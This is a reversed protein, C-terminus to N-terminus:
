YIYALRRSFFPVSQPTTVKNVKKKYTVIESKPKNASNSFRYSKLTELQPKHEPSSKSSRRGTRSVSGTIAKVGSKKRNSTAPKYGCLVGNGSKRDTRAKALGSASTNSDDCRGTIFSRSQPYVLGTVM